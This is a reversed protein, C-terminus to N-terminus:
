ASWVILQEYYEVLKLKHAKMVEEKRVKRVEGSKLKVGFWIPAKEGREQECSLIEM